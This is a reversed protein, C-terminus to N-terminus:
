LTCVALSQCDCKCDGARGNTLLVVGGRRYPFFLHGDPWVRCSLAPSRDRGLQSDGSSARKRGHIWLSTFCSGPWIHLARDAGPRNRRTGSQGCRTAWPGRRCVLVALFHGLPDPIDVFVVQRHPVKLLPHRSRWIRWAERRRAHCSPCFHRTKWSFTLLYEGACEPCRIMAFGWMPNACDLYCEVVERIM